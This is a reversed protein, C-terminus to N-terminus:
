CRGQSANVEAVFRRVRELVAEQQQRHPLHGTDAFVACQMQPLAAKLVDLHQTTGFEDEAGQLVLVPCTVRELADSFPMTGVRLGEIGAVWTAFVSDPDRHYQALRRQLQSGRYGAAMREILIRSSELAVVFPSELILMSARQSQAAYLIALGAGESHGYVIPNEIEFHRLISPIVEGIERLYFEKDRVVLPGDSDGQGARSYALVNANAALGLKEPFDRWYAVSGLAEHLLLIANTAGAHQHCAVETRRGLIQVIQRLCGPPSPTSDKAM